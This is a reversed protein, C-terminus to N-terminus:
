LYRALIPKVEPDTMADEDLGKLGPINSLWIYGNQILEYVGLPAPLFIYSGINRYFDFMEKTLKTPAMYVKCKQTNAPSCWESPTTAVVSACATPRVEYISCIDNHLFPCAINLKLYQASLVMFNGQKELSFGSDTMENYAKGISQFLTENKKVEARWRPYAILYNQMIAEHHYLFYVIVEIDQLSASVYQSCCFFCGKRCTISEGQKSTKNILYKEIEAIMKLKYNTYRICFDERMRGIVGKYAIEKNLEVYKRARYNPSSHESKTGCCHKYKKGSGCPCPDNRGIKSM